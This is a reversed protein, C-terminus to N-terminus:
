RPLGEGNGDILPRVAATLQGVAARTQVLDLDALKALVSNSRRAEESIAELVSRGDDSLRLVPSRRNRPNEDFVVFGEGVLDNAIRQVAQRSTGLRDAAMPVTWDGASLVSMLQWRAQTQGASAAIREGYRRLLGAAEFVDAVLLAFAEPDESSRRGM